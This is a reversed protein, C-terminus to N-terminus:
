NSTYYYASPQVCGPTNCASASAPPLSCASPSGSGAVCAMFAPTLDLEVTVEYNGDTSNTSNVVRAGRMFADVYTRVTDNQSAFSAVATGGSIRVGYVQEALNRYADIRAARMAMLKQQGLSVQATNVGMAGHGVAVVKQGEMPIAADAAPNPRTGASQCGALAAVGLMFALRSAHQITKM